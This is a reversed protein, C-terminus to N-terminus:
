RLQPVRLLLDLLKPITPNNSSQSPAPLLLHFPPPSPAFTFHPIHYRYLSFSSITFCLTMDLAYDSLSKWDVQTSILATEVLLSYKAVLPHLLEEEM